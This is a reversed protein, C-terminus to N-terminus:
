LDALLAALEPDMDDDSSEAEDDGELDALLADLEDDDPGAARVSDADMGAREAAARIVTWDGTDQDQEWLSRGIEASLRVADQGTVQAAVIM